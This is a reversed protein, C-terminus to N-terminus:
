KVREKWIAKIPYLLREILRLDETIIEGTGSMEQTFPIEKKYNSKLSPIEVEACYLTQAIGDVNESIPILSISKVRGELFGYEMYPFNDLKINVRQGETVKGVGISPIFLKGIIEFPEQPVVTAVLEGNQVSQNRNWYKTFTVLGEVPSILLYKKEWMDLQSLLSNYAVDIDLEAKRYDDEEQKQLDLIEQKLKNMQLQESVIQAGMDECLLSQSLYNQESQEHEYKSIANKGLLMDNRDKQKKAFDANQRLIDLQKQLQAMYSSRDSMEQRVMAMQQRYLQLKKKNNLIQVAHVFDAYFSQCEGLNLEKACRFDYPTKQTDLVSRLYLYDDYDATNEIIAVVGGRVVREQEKVFVATIKGTSQARLPAPPNETTIVIRSNIVDPYKFVFSMFLFLAVAVSIMTTGSRVLWSPTQGLIEQYEVSRLEIEKKEETEETM